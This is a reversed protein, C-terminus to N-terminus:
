AQLSVGRRKELILQQDQCLGTAFGAESLSLYYEWKRIFREDFGLARVEPLHAMFNSRWRALTSVYHQAIDRTDILLLQTRHLSREIQAVSPLLGGPFIHQQIWNSGRRQSEYAADPFCISQLSVRGGPKIARDCAEFFAGFFEAGVAELMEISVIADYQGEIERYDRLEVTALDQRGAQRIRENALKHQAPSITISTVRCGLEGAAYLAFGGWGSGIELVHMGRHLEAREAIIRYKNRQADALSQDPSAFVACSYTLTEDLFLRYFDNGMDYHAEINRRSGSITNRRARHAITRPVQLPVRLWGGTVGIAERNLAALRLMAPLDPSSWLGDMYAEGIGPEGGLVIRWVVGLDHLHLEASPGPAIGAFSRRTGDPLQVTLRGVALRRGLEGILRIAARDVLRTPSPARRRGVPQARESV